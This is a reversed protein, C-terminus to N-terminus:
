KGGFPFGFPVNCKKYIAAIVEADHLANHKSEVDTMRAFDERDVDFAEWDTMGLYEAIDQNIDHCVPSVNGPLDQATRGDTLLDVLLVFDYHSCDSVFQVEHFQKLWENLSQSIAKRNGCIKFASPNTDVYPLGFKLKALVNDKIWPSIKEERYDTFEAYFTNGTDTILGISILDTDKELGTFETDFFINM